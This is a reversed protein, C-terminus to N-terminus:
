ARGALNMNLNIFEQWFTRKKHAPVSTLGLYKFYDMNQM